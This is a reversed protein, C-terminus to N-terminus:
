KNSFNYFLKSNRENRENINKLIKKKEIKELIFNDKIGSNEKIQTLTVERALDIDHYKNYNQLKMNNVSNKNM